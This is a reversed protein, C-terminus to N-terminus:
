RIKGQLFTPLFYRQNFVLTNLLLSNNMIAKFDYPFKMRGEGSNLLM